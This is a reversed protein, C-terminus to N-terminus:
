EAVRLDWRQRLLALSRGAYAEAGEGGPARAARWDNAAAAALMLVGTSPEPGIPDRLGDDLLWLVQELENLWEDGTAGRAQEVVPQCAAFGAGGAM